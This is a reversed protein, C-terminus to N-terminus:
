ENGDELDAGTPEKNEAAPLNLEMVTEYLDSFDAQEGTLKKFVQRHYVSVMRNVHKGPLDYEKAIAKLGEKIVAKQGALITMQNSVDIISKRLKARTAPDSPIITAREQTM